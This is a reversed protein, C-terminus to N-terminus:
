AFLSNNEHSIKEKKQMNKVESNWDVISRRFFFIALHQMKIQTCKLVFVGIPWWESHTFHFEGIFSVSM